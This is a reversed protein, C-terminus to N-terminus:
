RVGIADYLESPNYLVGNKVVTHVRRIDSIRAAPNGDVLLLDAVKGAAISGLKNDQKMVKAANFTAIRLVEAAPIGAEAYLELERHLPFGGVSDTGAVLGVGADHLAKVMKLMAGFSARYHDDMGHPVPLGGVLVGRRVQPPLKDAVPAFSKSVQGARDTFMSEFIGLTPDVVVGSRSLKQIFAQVNGAAPDVESGHEAVTVFRLAQRTDAHADALFNLFLFNAHQLEQFGANVAEEASMFAPVHGGVRLGRKRAEEVIVPVLKPSVSSYIKIQEYGLDAYRNVWARAESENTAFVKTPGAYYGPGDILGAKIV